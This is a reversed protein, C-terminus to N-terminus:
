PEDLESAPLVWLERGHEGDNASFYLNDGAVTLERPTSWSPGESVDQILRTGQATGDSTWLEMGHAMGGFDRARFWLRGHWAVLGRPYSGLPGPAIDKMLETGEPTGDTSWIEEGHAADAAAFYM